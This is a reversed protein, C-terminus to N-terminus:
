LGFAAPYRVKGVVGDLARPKLEMAMFSGKPFPSEISEAKESSFGFRPYYERHGLVIVIKEGKALLLDLGHRILSSGIRQQQHDPLVAMPALAVVALSGAPTDVWARSFLIHGVISGELEAVLSVLVAGDVRLKDVLDAEDAQGFAAENVFRIAGREASSLCDECRVLVDM